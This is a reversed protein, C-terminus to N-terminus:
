NILKWEMKEGAYFPVVSDNLEPVECEAPVIWSDRRLTIIGENHSYGYFNAGFESLFPELKELAKGKEFFSVLLSLAPITNWAGCSVRACHKKSKLHAADDGGYWFKPNGALVVEGIAYRDEPDKAGPKFAGDHVMCLGGSRESYGALDDATQYLHHVTVSAGVYEDQATVWDVMAKSSVHEVSIKLRPFRRHIADLIQIFAVEKLRGIISYSPHEPHFQVVMGLDEAIQLAPYIKLYDVVGNESHTTVYRPYVKIVRVGKMFANLVMEVTTNETVQITLVPEFTKNWDLSLRAAERIEEGYAVAEEGTLKPPQTNPEGVVRGRWGFELMISVLFKLLRGQRFHAHWNDPIRMVIENLSIKM